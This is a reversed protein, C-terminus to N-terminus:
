LGLNKRELEALNRIQKAMDSVIKQVSETEDDETMEDIEKVRYISNKEKKKSLAMQGAEHAAPVVLQLQTAANSLAKTFL